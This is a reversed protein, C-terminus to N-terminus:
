VSRPEIRLYRSGDTAAASAAHEASAAHLPPDGPRDCDEATAVAEGLADDVVVPPWVGACIIGLALGDGSAGVWIGCVAVGDGAGVGGAGVGVGTQGEGDGCGEPVGPSWAVGTNGPNMSVDGDSPAVFTGDDDLDNVNEPPPSKTMPDDRSSPESPVVM